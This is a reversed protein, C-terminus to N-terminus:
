VYPFVPRGVSKLLPIMELPTVERRGTPVISADSNNTDGGTKHPPSFRM